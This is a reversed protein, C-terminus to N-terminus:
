SHYIRVDDRIAIGCYYDLENIMQMVDEYNKGRAVLGHNELVVLDNGRMANRVDEAVHINKVDTEYKSLYPVNPGIDYETIEPFYRRISNLEIHHVLCTYALINTTGHLHIVYADESEEGGANGARNWSHIGAHILLDDSPEATCWTNVTCEMPDKHIDIMAVDKNWLVKGDYTKGSMYFYSKNKPRFSVSSRQPCSLKPNNAIIKHIMPIKFTEM